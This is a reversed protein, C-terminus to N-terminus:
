NKETSDIFERLLEIYRDDEINFGDGHNNYKLWYQFSIMLQGFRTDPYTEWLSCLEALFPEFRYFDRYPKRPPNFEIGIVGYQAQEEASYYKLMDDPTASPIEERSYGCKELPLAEYLQEFSSFGHLATVEVRIRFGPKDRHTFIIEDGVAVASRKDDLLRLEITKEGDYVKKFPGANLTM